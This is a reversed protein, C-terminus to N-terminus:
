EGFSASSVSHFSVMEVTESYEKGMEFLVKKYSIFERGQGHVSEQYM